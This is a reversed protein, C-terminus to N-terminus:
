FSPQKNKYETYLKSLENYYEALEGGIQFTSRYNEFYKENMEDNDLSIYFAWLILKDNTSWNDKIEKDWENQFDNNYKIEKNKKFVVDRKHTTKGKSLYYMDIAWPIRQFELSDNFLLRYDILKLTDGDVKIKYNLTADYFDLAQTEGCETVTFESVFGDEFYGCIAYSDIGNIKIITDPKQTNKNNLSYCNCNTQGISTLSIIIIIISYVIKM